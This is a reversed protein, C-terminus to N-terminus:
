KGYVGHLKKPLQRALATMVIKSVWGDLGEPTREPLVGLEFAPGISLCLREGDEYVGVPVIRKCYKMLQWIFRGSGSPPLGLVGSPHDRGEPALGIVAGSKRAVRLVQLVARTRAAADRPDPPMPPTATFGYVQAFRPLLWRSLPEFIGLHTWGSTMMWHIDMPVGASIGLAIWWAGFGPRSYHNTVLLYPGLSPLNQSYFIKPPPELTQICNIADNKFSRNRLLLADALLSIGIKWPFPYHPEFPGQNLEAETM